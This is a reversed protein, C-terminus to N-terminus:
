KDAKRRPQDDVKTKAVEAEAGAKAAADERAKAAAIERAKSDKPHARRTYDPRVILFLGAFDPNTTNAAYQDKAKGADDGCYLVVHKGSTTVAIALSPTKM